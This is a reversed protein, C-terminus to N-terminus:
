EQEQSQGQYSAAAEHAFVKCMVINIYTEDGNDNGDSDGNSGTEDDAITEPTEGSGSDTGSTTETASLSYDTLGDTTAIQEKPITLSVYFSGIKGPQPQSSDSLLVGGYLTYSLHIIYNKDDVLESAM